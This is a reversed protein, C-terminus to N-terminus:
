VVRDETLLADKVIETFNKVCVGLHQEESCKSTKKAASSLCM